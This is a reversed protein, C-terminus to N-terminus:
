YYGRIYNIDKIESTYYFKTKISYKKEKSEYYYLYFNLTDYFSIYFGRESKFGSITDKIIKSSSITELEELHTKNFTYIIVSIADASDNNYGYLIYDSEMEFGGILFNNNLNFTQIVNSSDSMNIYGLYHSIKNPFLLINNSTPNLEIFSSFNTPINIINGNISLNNYLRIRILSLKELNQHPFLIYIEESNNTIECKYQTSIIFSEPYELSDKLDGNSINYISLLYKGLCVLCVLEKDIFIINSSDIISIKKNPFTIQNIIQFPEFQYINSSSIGIFTNSKYQNPIILVKENIKIIDNLPFFSNTFIVNSFLTVILFNIQM